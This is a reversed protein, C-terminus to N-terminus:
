NLLVEWDEQRPKDQMLDMVIVEVMSVMAEMMVRCEM